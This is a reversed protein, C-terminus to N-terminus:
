RGPLLEFRLHARPDMWFVSVAATGTPTTRAPALGLEFEPYLWPFYFPRAVRLGFMMGNELMPHAPAGPIYGLASSTSYVRPGFWGGVQIEAAAPSPWTALVLTVLGAWAAWASRHM